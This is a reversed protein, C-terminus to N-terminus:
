PEIVGKWANTLRLQSPNNAPGTLAQLVLPIGVLQPIPPIVIGTSARRSAPITQVALMALSGPPLFITGFPPLIQRVFNHGLLLVALDGPTGYIDVRHVSALCVPLDAYLQRTTNFFVFTGDTGGLLLDTDGDGDMDAPLVRIRPEVTAEFGAVSDDVFHGTGDNCLLLRRETGGNALVLDLDGDGDVDIACGDHIVQNPSIPPLNSSTRDVFRGGTNEFLQVNPGPGGPTVRSLYGPMLLDLDGDCDMDFLVLRYTNDYPGTQLAGAQDLHFQGSGDNWFLECAGDYLSRVLDMDGDGDLDGVVADWNQVQCPLTQGMTFHGLGDNMRVTTDAYVEFKILDLDGDRDVDCPVIGGGQDLLAPLHTTTVDTFIGRGDNLFLRDQAPTWGDAETRSVYIDLDTDGDVDIFYAGAMVIQPLGNSQDRTLHGTGDNRYVATPQYAGGARLVDMDGDSDVDGTREGGSNPMEIPVSSVQLMRFLAYQAPLFGGVLLFVFAATARAPATNM